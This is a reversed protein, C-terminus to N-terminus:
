PGEPFMERVVEALQASASLDEKVVGIGAEAAVLRCELSAVAVLLGILLAHAEVTGPQVNGVLDQLQKALVAEDPFNIDSLRWNVM